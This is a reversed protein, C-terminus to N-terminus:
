SHKRRITKTKQLLPKRDTVTLTRLIDLAADLHGRMAREAADPNRKAIADVIKHHEVVSESLRDPAYLIRYQYRVLHSKLLSLLRMATAHRAMEDIKQHLQTDLSAYGAIDNLKCCREMAALTTKLVTVDAPVANRAAHAAVLSELAKRAELIELAEQGSVLRVRAGRKHRREILGDQELRAIALRVTARTAGLEEAVDEEILRESPQFSGGIIAQRLQETVQDSLSESLM